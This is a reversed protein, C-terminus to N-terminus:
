CHVTLECWGHATLKGMELHPDVIVNHDDRLRTKDNGICIGAKTCDQELFHKLDRPFVGDHFDCTRMNLCLQMSALHTPRHGISHEM